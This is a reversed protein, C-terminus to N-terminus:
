VITLHLGQKFKFRLVTLYIKIKKDYTFVLFRPAAPHLLVATGRKKCCGMSELMIKAIVQASTANIDVSTAFFDFPYEQHSGRLLPDVICTQAARAVEVALSTELPTLARDYVNVDERERTARNERREAVKKASAVPNYTNSHRAANEGAMLCTTYPKVGHGRDHM